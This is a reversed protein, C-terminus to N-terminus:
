EKYDLFFGPPRPPSREPTLYQKKPIDGTTHGALSAPLKTRIPQTELPTRIFPGETAKSPSASDPVVTPWRLYRICGTTYSSVVPILFWSDPILFWSDPILFWSDPILFWSDPILFWSDPILFWSDPILFWSDPILFWSDPILFWSYWIIYLDKVRRCTLHLWIAVSM